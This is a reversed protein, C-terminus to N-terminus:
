KKGSRNSLRDTKETLTEKKGSVVWGVASAAIAFLGIFQSTSIGFIYGRIEDGRLFEIFFRAFSYIGLYVFFLRGELRKAARKKLFLILIFGFILFNCVSELLQVPFRRVGNVDPVLINGYATFGFQSEIGYCCGGLFCGIRAFGHFLPACVAFLDSYLKLDLKLMRVGWSGFVCVGILGGYFVSGGFMVRCLDLFEGFSKIEALLSLYKVNTVAYLFSGGVAIGLVAFLLVLVTDDLGIKFGKKSLIYLMICVAAAGVLAMLSYTGVTKGFITFFPFM